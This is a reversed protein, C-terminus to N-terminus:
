FQQLIIAEAPEMYDSHPQSKNVHVHIFVNFFCGEAGRDSKKGCIAGQMYLSQSTVLNMHCGM